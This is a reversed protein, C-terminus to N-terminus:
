QGEVTFNVTATDAGSSSKILIKSKGLAYVTYTNSNSTDLSRAHGVFSSDIFSMDNRGAGVNTNLDIVIQGSSLTASGQARHFGPNNQGQIPRGDSANYSTRSGQDIVPGEQRAAAQTETTTPRPLFPEPGSVTERRRAREPLPEVVCPLQPWDINRYHTIWYRHVRATFSRCDESYVKNKELKRSEGPAFSFSKKRKPIARFRQIHVAKPGHYTLSFFRSWGTNSREARPNFSGSIEEEDAADGSPPPSDQDLRRFIEQNSLEGFWMWDEIQRWPVLESLAASAAVGGSPIDVPDDGARTQRDGPMSRNRLDRDRDKDGALQAFAMMPILLIWLYRM